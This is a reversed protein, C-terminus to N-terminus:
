ATANVTSVQRSSALRDPKAAAGHVLTVVRKTPTGAVFQTM